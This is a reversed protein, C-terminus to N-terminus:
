RGRKKTAKKTKNPSRSGTVTPTITHSGTMDKTEIQGLDEIVDNSKTLNCRTKCDTSPDPKEAIKTLLKNTKRLEKLIAYLTRTVQDEFPVKGDWRGTKDKAVTRSKM